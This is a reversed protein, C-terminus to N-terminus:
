IIGIGSASEEIMAVVEEDENECAVGDDVDPQNCNLIQEEPGAVIDM